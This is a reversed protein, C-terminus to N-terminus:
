NKIAALICPQSEGDRSNCNEDDKFECKQQRCRLLLRNLFPQDDGGGGGVGWGGGGM